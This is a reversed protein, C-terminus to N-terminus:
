HESQNFDPLDGESQTCGDIFEGKCLRRFPAKLIINRIKFHRPWSRLSLSSSLIQALVVSSIISIMSPLVMKLPLHIHAKCIIVKSGSYPNQYTIHWNPTTKRPWDMQSTLILINNKKNFDLIQYKNLEWYYLREYKLQKPFTDIYFTIIIPLWLVDIVKSGTFPNQCEFLWKPTTKRPWDLQSSSLNPCEFLLKLNLMSVM